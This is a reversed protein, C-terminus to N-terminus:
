KGSSSNLQVWKKNFDSASIPRVHTKYWQFAQNETSGSLGTLNTNTASKGFIKVWRSNFASASMSPHEAQYALFAQNEPGGPARPTATPSPNPTQHSQIYALLAALDSANGSTFAGNSATDWLPQGSGDTPVTGLGAPAASSAASSKRYQLYAFILLGFTLLVTIWVWLPAHRLRGLAGRFGGTASSATEMSGGM